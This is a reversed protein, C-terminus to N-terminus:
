VGVALVFRVPLFLCSEVILVVDVMISAVAIIASQRLEGNGCETSANGNIGVESGGGAVVVM